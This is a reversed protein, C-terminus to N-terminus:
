SAEMIDNRRLLSVYLLAALSTTFGEGVASPGSDNALYAVVSGLLIALLALRWVPAEDFTTRVPAPPRLVAILTVIVGLVPLIAFPNSAILHTGVGLRDVLKDWVGSLGGADEAFRTVHTEASTLYRHALVVLAGGALVSAVTAMVTRWWTMGGRLGWWIGAGAFLTVAAGINSGTWPLGALFGIAAILATGHTGPLRQAVYISGGLLLGIFANPLGFYRGGDLQSGGLLPTLAATWGLAAEVILAVLLIVGGLAVAVLTGRRRAIPVLALTGVGTTAVLFPIVTAYTLSPLHGVLLLSLALFPASMAVWAGLGRLWRPTGTWLLAVAAVLSAVVAYLAAATGIPVALRKSQVYRDFLDLPPPADVFRIEEGGPDLALDTLQARDISTAALDKSTVVGDQHTSDSTLTRTAAPAPESDRIAAVLDNPLGEAVIIAGIRPTPGIRYSSAVIVLEDAAISGDLAAALQDAARDLREVSPLGSPGAVSGLDTNTTGPEPGILRGTALRRDFLPDGAKTMILLAAGGKQSLALFGPTSLLADLDAGEITVLLVESGWPAAQASARPAWVFPSVGILSAILAALLRRVTKRV